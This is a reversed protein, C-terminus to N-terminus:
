DSSPRADTGDVFEREILQVVEGSDPDVLGVRLLDGQTEVVGVLWLDLRPDFQVFPDNGDGVDISDMLSAFDPDAMAADIIEPPHLAAPDLGDLILVDLSAELTKSPQGSEGARQYEGFRGTVTALGSPPKGLQWQAYGDWRSRDRLSEGPSIRDTFSTGKCGYGGTGISRKPEIQLEIATGGEILASKALWPFDVGRSVHEGERWEAEQMAGSVLVASDCRGHEWIVDDDGVNEVKTAIWVPEGAVVPNQDITMTLRVGDERVTDSRKLALPEDAAVVVSTAIVLSLSLLAAPGGRSWGVFLRGVRIM